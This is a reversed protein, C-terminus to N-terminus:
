GDKDEAFIDRYSTAILDFEEGDIEFYHFMKDKVVVLIACTEKKKKGLFSYCDRVAGSGAWAQLSEMSPFHNNM